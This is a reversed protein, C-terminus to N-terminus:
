DIYVFQKNNIIDMNGTHEMIQKAINVLSGPCAYYGKSAYKILRRLTSAPFQMRHLVLRKNAIDLVTLPNLYVFESDIAVQTVTFDFTDIVHEGDEYWVLKILQIKPKTDHKFIIFRHSKSDQKFKEFDSELEYDRWRKHIDFVEPSTSPNDFPIDSTDVEPKKPPTTLINFTDKFAQESTFMIDIDKADAKGSFLSLAYGGCIFAGKPLARIFEEVVKNEVGRDFLASLPLKVFQTDTRKIFGPLENNEWFPKVEFDIVYKSM